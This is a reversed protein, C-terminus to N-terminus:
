WITSRRSVSCPAAAQTTTNVYFTEARELLSARSELRDCGSARDEVDFDPPSVGFYLAVTSKCFVRDRKEDALALSKSVAREPQTRSGM